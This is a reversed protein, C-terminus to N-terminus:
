MEIYQYEVVPIAIVPAVRVIPAASSRCLEEGFLDPKWVQIDKIM